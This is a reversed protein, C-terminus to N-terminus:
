SFKGARAPDLARTYESARAIKAPAAASVSQNAREMAAVMGIGPPQRMDMIHIRMGPCLQGAAPASKTAIHAAM